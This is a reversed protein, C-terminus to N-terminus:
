ENLIMEELLRDLEQRGAIVDVVKVIDDTPAYRYLILHQSFGIVLSRRLDAPLEADRYATLFIRPRSEPLQLIQLLTNSVAALWREALAHSEHLRYYDAQTLVSTAAATFVKLQTTHSM